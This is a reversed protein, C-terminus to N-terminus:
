MTLATLPEAPECNDAVIGALPVTESANGTPSCV